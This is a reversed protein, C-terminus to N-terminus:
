YTIHLSDLEHLSIGPVRGDRMKKLVLQGTKEADSETKFQKQGALGPIYPQNIYVQNDVKIQYGWGGNVEITELRAVHKPQCSFFIVGSFGLLLVYKKFSKMPKLAESNTM